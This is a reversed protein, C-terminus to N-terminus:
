LFKRLETGAALMSLPKNYLVKRIVVSLGIGALVILYGIICSLAPHITLEKYAIVKDILVTIIMVTITSIYVAIISPVFYKYACCSYICLMFILLSGSIISSAHMDIPSFGHKFGLCLIYITFGGLCCIANFRNAFDIELIRNIPSSKAIGTYLFSQLVQLLYLPTLTIFFGLMGETIDGTFFIFLGFLLFSIALVTNLKIQFGYKLLSFVTKFQKMM